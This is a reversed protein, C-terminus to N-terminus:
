QSRTLSYCSTSYLHIKSPYPSQEIVINPYMKTAKRAKMVMDESIDLGVITANPFRNALAILNRGTGCGVELITKVDSSLVPIKRIVRKRGFLFTWRTLDYIQSQFQYYHNMRETQHQWNSLTMYEMLAALTGFFPYATL